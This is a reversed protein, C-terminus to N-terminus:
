AMKKIEFGFGQSQIFLGHFEALGIESVHLLDAVEVLELHQFGKRVGLHGGGIHQAGGTVAQPIGAAGLQLLDKCFHHPGLIGEDAALELAAGMRQGHGQEAQQPCPVGQQSGGAAGVIRQFADDTQVALALAGASQHIVAHLVVFGRQLRIEGRIIVEDGLLCRPGLDAVDLAAPAIQLPIREIQGGDPLDGVGGAGGVRLDDDKHVVAIALEGLRFFGALGTGVEHHAAEDLVGAAADGGGAAVDCAAFVEHLEAGVAQVCGAEALLQAACQIGGAIQIQAEVIRGADHTLGDLRGNIRLAQQFQHALRGDRAVALVVVVDHGAEVGTRRIGEDAEAATHLRGARHVAIRGRFGRRFRAIGILDDHGAAAKRLAAGDLKGAIARQPFGVGAIQLAAQVKCGAAGTHQQGHLVSVKSFTSTVIGAQKTGHACRAPRYFFFTHFWHVLYSGNVRFHQCTKLLAIRGARLQLHHGIGDGARSQRVGGKHGSGCGFQLHIEGNQDLGAVDGVLLLAAAAPHEGGQVDQALPDDPLAFQLIEGDRGGIQGEVVLQFLCVEEKLVDNVKGRLFQVVALGEGQQSVRQGIAALPIHRDAEDFLVTNHGGPHHRLRHVGGARGLVQGDQVALQALIRQLEAGKDTFALVGRGAALLHQCLDVIGQADEVALRGLGEIELVGIGVLDVVAVAAQGRLLEEVLVDAAVEVVIGDDDSRGDMCDVAGVALRKHPIHDLVAHEPEVERLLLQFVQGDALQLGPLADHEATVAVRIAVAGVAVPVGVAELVALHQAPQGKAHGLRLTQEGAVAGHVVAHHEAADIQVLVAGGVAPLDLVAPALLGALFAVVDATLLPELGVDILDGDALAQQAIGLAGQQRLFRQGHLQPVRPCLGVNLQM